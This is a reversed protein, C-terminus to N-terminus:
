QRTLEYWNLNLRGTDCVVRFVATGQPLVLPTSAPVTTWSQYGGTNPVALAGSANTGVPFEVHISRTSNPTAARIAMTYKGAVPVNIHYEYWQGDAIQGLDLGGGTDTTAEPVITGSSASASEAEIHIVSPITPLLQAQLAAIQTKMAAIDTGIKNIQAQISLVEADNTVKASWLTQVSSDHAVISSQAWDKYATLCPLEPQTAICTMLDPPAAIPVPVSVAQPHSSLVLALTLSCCLGAAVYSLNREKM